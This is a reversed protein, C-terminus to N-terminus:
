MWKLMKEAIKTPYIIYTGATVSEKIAQVRAERVELLQSASEMIDTRERSNGLYDVIDTSGSKKAEIVKEQTDMGSSCPNNQAAWNTLPGVLPKNSHIRM